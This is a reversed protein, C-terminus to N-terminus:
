QGPPSSGSRWRQIEDAGASGSWCAARLRTVTAGDATEASAQAEARSEFVYGSSVLEPLVVVSAGQAAAHSIAHAALERNAAPDALAPAVQCCAVVTTNV